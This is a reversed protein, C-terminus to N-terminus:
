APSRGAPPSQAPRADTPRRARRSFLARALSLRGRRARDRVRAPERARAANPSSTLVYGRYSVVHM